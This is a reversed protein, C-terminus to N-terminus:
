NSRTIPLKRLLYPYIKHGSALKSTNPRRYIVEISLRKMLTRVHLRGTKYGEAVLLGKLMRLGAFPYDLHLEDIRRMLTLDADSVPRPRYYVSGRSIRLARDQRTISLKHKRDIM